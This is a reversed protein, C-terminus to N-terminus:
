SNQGFFDGGKAYIKLTKEPAFIFRNIVCCKLICINSLNIIDM